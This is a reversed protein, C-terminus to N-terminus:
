LSGVARRSAAYYAISAVLAGLGIFAIIGNSVGTTPLAPPTVPPTVPVSPVTVTATDCDDPSGPVQPADVCATNVIAESTQDVVKASIAFSVSEGVKLSPITYSWKNNAITGKDASIFQVHAPANDTVVANTLDVAGTNKVVLQYTFAQNLGVQKQKVGDVTKEISVGPKKPTVYADDCDDPMGPVQPADVCATNKIDGAVYETVKAKIAFSVSEGVKLSPITYSWKNNAITGKDASIFQVYQPANDTVAVNTLDTNGTNKVVLQYTFTENVSVSKKKVGDVTKEISVGPNPAPEVTFQKTCNASTTTKDQGDVTVTVIAQVSYTGPTSNQYVNSPGRYLETGNSDKVVYTVSKFTANQVTYKTDFQFKTRELKTVSLMDCTYSPAPKCHKNVIVNATDSIAMGGTTVKGTNVLTNDGCAPLSDNAPVTASFIAWATAKSAYSGVNIGTGNAINDSAKTGQPVKSNGFTTSGTVYTMGTPLADRFTVDNQVSEGTNQYSLMYDVTEGPQATYSKVWKNAGHKSVYKQLTFSNTPAFQPKVKIYIYNAYQFCGPVNGDPGNYGILAGSNTVISDSLSKGSTAYGNNYIQASGSIYALNFDKDSKFHVDDFVQKPQANDASVLGTVTVSKGTTTPVAATVRTNTATLNLSSAANNHAYIRIIYEHGPEVNITDQWGGDNTNSADKVVTFNREDGVNPNDTMSNFTIHDAPHDRTYTQRDPGWAHLVVPVILVAAIIAFIASMRGPAQRMLTALKKM